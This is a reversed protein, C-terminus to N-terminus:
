RLTDSGQAVNMRDASVAALAELLAPNYLDARETVDLHDIAVELVTGGIAAALERQKSLAVQRDRTTIVSAAPVSVTHLWPRSDFRGLERGAEAIDRASHRMLESLWWASSPSLPINARRFGARWAARPAISLTLGMVGMWKWAKATEPDQFHQATGSLVVGSVVDRHDRAVLQAITGGMSYGVFIAPALGLTRVANAADAACDVLRFPTLARLGRGHGRHDIALVRYGAEVLPDYASHWNLDGSVTWGHLLMVAPGDGGSDRLFLEGTGPVNLTRAPLMEHPPIPPYAPTRMPSITGAESESGVMLEMATTIADSRLLSM